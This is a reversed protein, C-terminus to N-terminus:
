RLGRNMGAQLSELRERAARSWRSTNAKGLDRLLRSVFDPPLVPSPGELDIYRFDGQSVMPQYNLTISYTTQRPPLPEEQAAARAFDKDLVFVELEYTLPGKIFYIEPAELLVTLMGDQFAFERKQICQRDIGFTPQKLRVMLVHRTELPISVKLQWGGITPPELLTVAGIRADRTLRIEREIGRGFHRDNSDFFSGRGMDVVSKKQTPGCASLALLAAILLLHHKM